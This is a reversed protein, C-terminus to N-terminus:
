GARAGAGARRRAPPTGHPRHRDGREPDAFTVIVVKAHALGLNRLLEEDASDGWVVPEGARRAARVNDPDLDLALYEFGQSALVRALHRGVRGFGCLLVHERQALEGAAGYEPPLAEIPPGREGLVFRAIRKNYRIVLPSAIMGLVVAALLLQTSGRRWWSAARRRPHTLLAVGFEGGGALVLGTRLSKFRNTGFARVILASLLTKSLALLALLGVM